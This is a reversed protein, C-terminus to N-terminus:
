EMTCNMDDKDAVKVAAGEERQEVTPLAGNQLEVSPNVFSSNGVFGSAFFRALEQYVEVQIENKLRELDEAKVYVMQSEYKKPNELRDYYQELADMIIQTKSKRGTEAEEEWKVMVKMHQKNVYSFRLNFGKFLKTSEPM